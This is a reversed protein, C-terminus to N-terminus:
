GNLAGAAEEFFRAIELVLEPTMHVTGDALVNEEAALTLDCAIELLREKM